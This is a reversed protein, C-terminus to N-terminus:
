ATQSLSTARRELRPSHQLGDIARILHRRPDAGTVEGAVGWAMLDDVDLIARRRQQQRAIRDVVRRLQLLGLQGAPGVLIGFGGGPHRLSIASSTSVSRM